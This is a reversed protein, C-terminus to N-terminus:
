RACGAPPPSPRAPRPESGPGPPGPALWNQAIHQRQRPWGASVHHRAAETDRASAPLADPWREPRVFLPTPTPAVVASAPASSPRAARESAAIAPHGCAAGVETPLLSGRQCSTHRGRLQRDQLAHM